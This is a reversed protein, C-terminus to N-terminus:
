YRYTRRIFLYVTVRSPTSLEDGFYFLLGGGPPGSKHRSASDLIVVEDDLRMCLWPPDKYFYYLRSSVQYCSVVLKSLGDVYPGLVKHERVKLNQKDSHFLDHCLYIYHPMVSYISNSLVNM